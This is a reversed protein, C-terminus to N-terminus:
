RNYHSDIIIRFPKADKWIWNSAWLQTSKSEHVSLLRDLPDSLVTGALRISFLNRTSDPQRQGRSRLPAVTKAGLGLAVSVPM